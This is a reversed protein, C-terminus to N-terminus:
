KAKVQTAKVPAKKTDAPTVTTRKETKIAKVGKQDVQARPATATAAPHRRTAALNQVPTTSQASADSATALAIFSLTYFITKKM